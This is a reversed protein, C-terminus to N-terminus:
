PKSPKAVVGLPIKVGTYAPLKEKLGIKKRPHSLIFRM